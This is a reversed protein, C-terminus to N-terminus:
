TIQDHQMYHHPHIYIYLEGSECCTGQWGPMCTCRGDTPTGGNQCADRNCQRSEQFHYPCGGDCSEKETEHRKRTKEGTTGCKHSCSSWSTWQSVSCQRRPTCPSPPSSGGGGGGGGGGCGSVHDQLFLLVVVYVVLISIVKANMKWCAYIRM